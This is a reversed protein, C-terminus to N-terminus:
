CFVGPVLFAADHHLAAVAIGAALGLRPTVQASGRAGVRATVVAPPRSLHRAVELRHGQGPLSLMVM